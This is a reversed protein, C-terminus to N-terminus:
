SDPLHGLLIDLRRPMQKFYITKLLNYTYYITTDNAFLIGSAKKVSLELGHLYNTCLLFHLDPGLVSGQPIGITVEHM